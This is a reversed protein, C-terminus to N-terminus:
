RLTGIQGGNEYLKRVRKLAIEVRRKDVQLGGIRGERGGGLGVEVGGVLGGM